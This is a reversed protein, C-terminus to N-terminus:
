LAANAERERWRLRDLVLLDLLHREGLLHLADDVVQELAAVFHRDDRLDEVRRRRSEVVLARARAGLEDGAPL